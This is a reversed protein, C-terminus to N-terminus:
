IREGLGTFVRLIYSRAPKKKDLFLGFYYDFVQIIYSLLYDIYMKEPPNEPDGIGYVDKKWATELTDIVQQSDPLIELRANKEADTEM